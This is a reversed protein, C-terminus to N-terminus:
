AEAYRELEAVIGEARPADGIQVWWAWLEIAGYFQYLRLTERWEPQDIPGYGALLGARKAADDRVSYAITKALDMLPDGAIANELDIIGTLQLASDRRDALLNGSHYDYHCLIPRTCGDLLEASHALYADLQAALAPRGGLKAFGGLKREFQSLMYARNSAFPQAVGDAVLYGFSELSIGHIVRLAEGMQRYIAHTEDRDLSPEWQSVTRGEFRNMVVFNLDLLSRSDDALLIRPVPIPRGELLRAVSVENQMKWHMAEPYVKLVFAPPGDALEIEFVASIEGALLEGIRALRRGPAVRDVIAQAQEDTVTLAPKLTVIM